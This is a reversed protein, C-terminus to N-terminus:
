IGRLKLKKSLHTLAKLGAVSNGCANLPPSFVALGMKGPAACLIGGCVGSKGPVGIDVAFKGSENYLGCSSMLGLLTYATDLTIVREGTFPNVGGGAIAAGIVSLRATTTKLSCLQFYLSLTEEVGCSLVGTGSMFYALSRNRDATNAESEYMKRNVSFREPAGASSGCALRSAFATVENLAEGRYRSAIMSVVSIAGANIFPNLPINSTLELKAISNFPEACPEMGVHSFVAEAGFRELAFALSLIKSISQMSFTTKSDGVSHTAGSLTTASLSFLRPDVNALEPIYAAPKSDGYDDRYAREIESLLATMKQPHHEEM